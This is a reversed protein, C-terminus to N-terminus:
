ERQRFAADREALSRKRRRIRRLNKSLKKAKRSLQHERDLRCYSLSLARYGHQDRNM